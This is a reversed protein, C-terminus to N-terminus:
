DFFDDNITKLFILAIMSVFIFSGHFFGIRWSIWEVGLIISLITMIVVGSPGCQLEESDDGLVDRIIVFFIWCCLVLGSFLGMAWSGWSDIPADPSALIMIMLLSFIAAKIKSKM